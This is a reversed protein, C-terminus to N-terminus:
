VGTKLLEAGSPGFRRRESHVASDGGKGNTFAYSVALRHKELFTHDVKAIMGGATNTEPSVVFYNNQFYPGANSNAHPYYDLIRRALPDQRTLPIRASLPLPRQHVASQRALHRERRQLGPEFSSDVPRLDGAGRGRQGGGPQLRGDRESDIPVTRLYSRGIHEILGEYSLSFFTARRGDYLKPLIVPGSVNFGFQNRRLLNVEGGRQRIEHPVADVFDNRLNEFLRGHFQVRRGSGKAAKRPSDGRLGYERTLSKFEEAARSIEAAPRPATQGCLWASCVVAAGLGTFRIM